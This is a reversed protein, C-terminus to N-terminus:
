AKPKPTRPKRSKSNPAKFPVVKGDSKPKARSKKPTTSGTTIPSSTVNFDTPAPVTIKTTLTGVITSPEQYLSAIDFEGYLDNLTADLRYTDTAPCHIGRLLRTLAAFAANLSGRGNLHDIEDLAQTIQDQTM